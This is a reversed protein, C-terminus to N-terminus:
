AADHFIIGLTHRQGARVRSVGHRMNVRYAGRVGQVPRQHVAFIVADGQRLPVVQPRSQMRPRQETLVFEGGDFDQGPEALLIAVQLPFVQEGYLDQHLCNYDGPAYQLLLPTPRLQGAAHCRAIFDAHLAPYSLAIGMIQNWRNAVPVLHPYLTRRLDGILAPLPYSFYKYEGRGFGHREMVVRSRFIHENGYSAAIARCQGTSLLGPVLVWGQEDLDTEIRAWDLMALQGTTDPLVAHANM